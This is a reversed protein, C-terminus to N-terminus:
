SIITVVKIKINPTNTMHRATIYKERTRLSAAWFILLAASRPPELEARYAERGCDRPVTYLYTGVKVSCATTTRRPKRKM